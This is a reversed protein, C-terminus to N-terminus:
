CAGGPCTDVCSCGSMTPEGTGTIPQTVAATDADASAAPQEIFFSQVRLEDLHLSLTSMASREQM